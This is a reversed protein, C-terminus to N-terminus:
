DVYVFENANLLMRCLAFLSEGRVLQTAGALEDRTPPRVFALRFARNVQAAADSGAEREVRAAFHRAQQLMFENNSLTLAQLATTTATRAPTLNAPNPCDLTTLFQHPTTRVVFRYISRRWLEPADATIYQYIPAYAETYKFDRWGPGGAALNLNGSVALVADRTSEADLRRPNQRWLLRNSADLRQALQRNAGHSDQRYAASTCILRHMAKLSWGRALFEEALWDLLEPHSPTGGGKGFDSPTDVLGVGFHHHWLRNVLVRRTLPNAPHVIWEALAHRRGGESQARTFDPPALPVCALGGPGVEDQPEEPNGRKLVKVAAPEVNTIAYVKDGEVKAALAATLQKEEARLSEIRARDAAALAAPDRAPVLRADGLFLLDHSIGDGGDTAVLTLTEAADPLAVDVRASEDKRLKLKQFLLEKGAFVSFDARTAAATPNSGFGVTAVLRLTGFGSAKRIEALNFTIGANAHLGLLSHGATAYDVGDLKTSVQANLPGNRVADWAHGSTPPLNSVTVQYAVPVPSKGDPVFLWQVFKPANGNGWEPKQLRNLQINNHYGLKERAVNGTRLNLGAGKTGTGRGNGGGVMDALDLGEGTLRGLEATVERLRAQTRQREAERRATAVPDLERDGRKVGSFVAWLGYYERQSIPDLKHDHCRACNITVGMTGALVQTVMDDLDDARAARKLIDSRTEVQGVFDWPGAALFGTAAFLEPTPNKLKSDAALVDGAIQERLFQDYPKDANLAAIVYDRYRWANPRLQDREFGHTDAYHAIDLWHRAWREGYHPSALLRDVLRALASHPIRLSSDTAPAGKPMGFEASRVGCEKEFAEVEEPKPPLGLLDFNLRRILTRPDAEPSPTLGKEALKARIFADIPHSADAPVGVKRVPQYAWHDQGAGQAPMALLLVALCVLACGLRVPCDRSPSTIRRAHM